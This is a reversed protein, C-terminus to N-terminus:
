CTCYGLAPALVPAPVVPAWCLQVMMEAAEEIGICGVVVEVEEMVIYRVVEEMLTSWGKRVGQCLVLSHTDQVVWKGTHRAM